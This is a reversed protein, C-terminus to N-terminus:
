SDRLGEGPCYQPLDKEKEPIVDQGNCTRGKSRQREILYVTEEWGAPLGVTLGSTTTSLIAAVPLLFILLFGKYRALFAPVSRYRSNSWGANSMFCQGDKYVWVVSEKM